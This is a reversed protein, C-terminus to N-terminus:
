ASNLRRSSSSRRPCSTSSALSPRQPANSHNPTPHHPSTAPLPPPSLHHPSTTHLPPPFLHRLNPHQTQRPPHALRRIRHTPHACPGGISYGWMELMWGFEADAAADRKLAFSLDYWPQALKRLADNHVLIPSPGVQLLRPASCAHTASATSLLLPLASLCGVISSSPLRWHLLLSAGICFCQLHELEGAWSPSVQQVNEAIADSGAFRRVIEITRANRKPFMYHFPYGVVVNPEATNAMPKLLLHDTEAILLYPEEFTLHGRSLAALISHPRNLVVFNLTEAATLESCLVTPLEHMLKDPQAGPTTLLRTFGGMDSCPYQRKLKVYHYFFIRSQWEQYKGTSATLLVHYPKRSSPCAVDSATLRDVIRRTAAISGNSPPLPPLKSVPATSAADALTARSATAASQGVWRRQHQRVADRRRSPLDFDRYQVVTESTTSSWVVLCVAGLAAVLFILKVLLIAM